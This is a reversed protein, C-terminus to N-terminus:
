YNEYRVQVQSQLHLRSEKFDLLMGRGQLTGMEYQHVLIDSESVAQELALDLMMSEAQLQLPYMEDVSGKHLTAGQQLHLKQQVNYLTGQQAKIVWAPQNDRYVVVQPLEFETMDRSPFHALASSSLYHQVVGGDDLVQIRLERMYYDPQGVMLQDQEDPLEFADQSWWSMAALMVLGLAVVIRQRVSWLWSM